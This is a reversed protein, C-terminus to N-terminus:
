AIKNAELSCMVMLHARNEGKIPFLNQFQFILTIEGLRVKQWEKTSVGGLVPILSSLMACFVLRGGAEKGKYTGATGKEPFARVGGEKGPSSRSM